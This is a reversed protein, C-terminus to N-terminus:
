REPPRSRQMLRAEFEKELPHGLMLHRSLEDLRACGTAMLTLKLGQRFSELVALPAEENELAARLLPLGIGVMRAGLGLAKAATMGDRIGGTAILPLHPFAQHVASLSYATPIGWDRFSVGLEQSLESRSRLGEIHSWSTGGKGGIDVTAFGLDLLRQVTEPTMGSGVEKAIVPVALNRCIRELGKFLGSFRRDGEVQVLEQVLNFHVALADADIMGVAKECISLADPGTLQAMGINGILFLGPAHQKVKFISAYEPNDLAIRQSGVGMPINMQAAAKALRRNIEAGKHIGGTMGTILLPASFRRGLFERHLDIDAEDMLPLAEPRFSLRSFGTFRDSAEVDKNRCIEIHQDKRLQGMMDLLRSQDADKVVFVWEAAAMTCVGHLTFSPGDSLSVTIRKLHAGDRSGPTPQLHLRDRGLSQVFGACGQESLWPLAPELKILDPTRSL